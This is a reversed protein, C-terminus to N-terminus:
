VNFLLSPPGWIRHPRKQFRFLNKKGRTTNRGAALSALQVLKAQTVCISTSLTDSILGRGRGKLDETENKMLLVKVSNGTDRSRLALWSCVCDAPLYCFIESIECHRLPCEHRGKANNPATIRQLLATM